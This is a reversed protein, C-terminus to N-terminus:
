PRVKGDPGIADSFDRRTSSRFPLNNQLLLELVRGGIRHPEPQDQGIIVAGKRKALDALAATVTALDAQKGNLEIVGTRSVWITVKPADAPIPLTTKFVFPFRAVVTREPATIFRWRAVEAVICSEVNKENLTSRVVRAGSVSGDKEVTWGVEVSGQLDPHQAVEKEYCSKIAELHSRVVRAIAEKPLTGPLPFPPGADPASLAVPSSLLAIFCILGKGLM